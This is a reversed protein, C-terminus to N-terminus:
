SQIESARMGNRQLVVLYHDGMGRLVPLAGLLDDLDDLFGSLRPVRNRFAQAHPPPSLLSLGRITVPDFWTSATSLFRGLPHYHVTFSHGEFGTAQVGSQFRRFASGPRFRALGVVIEWLCIRPMAVAVFRGGPNLVNAVNLFVRELSDTCNLGAFNSLVVDFTRGALHSLDEFSSVTFETKLEPHMSARRKAQDIMRPSLDVGTVSHGDAALAFADLGIGCNIDLISGHSMLPRITGYVIERIRATVQNELASEFEQAIADFAKAVDADHIRIEPM